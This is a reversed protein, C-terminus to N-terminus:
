QGVEGKHKRMSYGEIVQTVQNFETAKDFFFEAGAELCKQRFIAYPFATLMIVVPNPDRARLMKLVQIGDGDPMCIDLVVLDPELQDLTEAAQKASEAQGILEVAGMEAIESSLRERILSSDDIILVKLMVHGGDIPRRESALDHAPRGPVTADYRRETIGAMTTEVVQLEQRKTDEREPQAKDDVNKVVELKISRSRGPHGRQACTDWPLNENVTHLFFPLPPILSVGIRIYPLSRLKQWFRDWM